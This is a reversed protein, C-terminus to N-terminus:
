RVRHFIQGIVQDGSGRERHHVTVGGAEILMDVNAAVFTEIHDENITVSAVNTERLCPTKKTFVPATRACSRNEAGLRSFTNRM